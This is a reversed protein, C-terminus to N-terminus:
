PEFGTTLLFKINLMQKSDFTKFLRFHYWSHALKFM